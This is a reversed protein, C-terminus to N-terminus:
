WLELSGTGMFNWCVYIVCSPFIIIRTGIWVALAMVMISYLVYKSKFKMDAYARGGAVIIDGMDHIMLVLASTYFFNFMGSYFILGAAM